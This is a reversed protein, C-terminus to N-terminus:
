ASRMANVEKFIREMTLRARYQVYPNEDCSLVKLVAIPINYSEALRMRVDADPDRALRWTTSLSINGNESVSARVQPNEHNALRALTVSHTCPNQAVRELLSASENKALQDLVPAPTNPNIALLWRINEAEREMKVVNDSKAVSKKFASGKDQVQLQMDTDRKITLTSM